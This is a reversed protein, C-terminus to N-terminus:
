NTEPGVTAPPTDGSAVAVFRDLAIQLYADHDLYAYENFSISLFLAVNPGIRSVAYRLTIDSDFGDDTAFTGEFSIALQDDVAPNSTAETSTVSGDWTTGDSDTVSVSTCAAAEEQASDVFATAASEDAFTGAASLISAWADGEFAYEARALDTFLETPASPVMNLCGIDGIGINSTSTDAQWGDSLNEAALVATDLQAQTLPPVPADTTPPASPTTTVVVTEVDGADGGDDGCATALALLPLCTAVGLTRRMATTPM